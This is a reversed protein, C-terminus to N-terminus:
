SNFNVMVQTPTIVSVAVGAISRVSHKVFLERDAVVQQVAQRAQTADEGKYLQEEPSGATQTTAVYEDGWDEDETLTIKVVGSRVGQTTALRALFITQTDM